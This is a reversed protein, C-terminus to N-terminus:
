PSYGPAGHDRIGNYAQGWEAEHAQQSHQIAAAVVEMSGSPGAATEDVIRRGVAAVAASAASQQFTAFAYLDNLSDARLADLESGAVEAIEDPRVATKGQTAMWLLVDDCYRNTGASWGLGLLRRREHLLARRPRAPSRGHAATATATTAVAVIAAEQISSLRSQFALYRRGVDSKFFDMLASGQQAGLGANLAEQWSSAIKDARALLVPGVDYRLDQAITDKLRQWGASTADWTGDASVIKRLERIAAIDLTPRLERARGLMMLIDRLEAQSAQRARVTTLDLAGHALLLERLEARKAMMLPTNPAANITNNVNADAAILLSVLDLSAADTRSDAAIVAFRLASDKASQSQDHGLLYRVVDMHQNFAAEVLARDDILTADHAELLKVIDLYGKQAAESIATQGAGTRAETDAGNQLLLEVIHGHGSSAAYLLPTTGRSRNANVDARRGILLQAVEFSNFFAARHLATIGMQLGQQQEGDVKAGHDLLWTAVVVQNQEAAYDLLAKDVDPRANIDRGPTALYAALQEISGERVLNVLRDAESAAASLGLATAYLFGFLAASRVPSGRTRRPCPLKTPDIV